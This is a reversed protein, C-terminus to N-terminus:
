RQVTKFVLKYHGGEVIKNCMEALIGRFNKHDSCITSWKEKRNAKAYRAKIWNVDHSIVKYQEGIMATVVTQLSKLLQTNSTPTEGLDMKRSVAQMYYSMEDFPIGQGKSVSMTFLQNLKEAMYIWNKDVGAGDCYNYLDGLDIRKSQSEVTRVSGGFESKNDKTRITEYELRTVAELIPNETKSCEEYCKKCALKTYDKVAEKSLADIRVMKSYDNDLMATNYDVALQEVQTRLEDMRAAIVEIKNEETVVEATVVETGNKENTKKM